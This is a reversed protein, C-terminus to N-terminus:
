FYMRFQNHTLMRHQIIHKGLLLTRSYYVIHKTIKALEIQLGFIHLVELLDWVFAYTHNVSEKSFQLQNRNHEVEHFL